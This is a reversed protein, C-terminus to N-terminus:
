KPAPRDVWGPTTKLWDRREVKKQLGGFEALAGLEVDEISTTTCYYLFVHVRKHIRDILDSRFLPDKVFLKYYKREFRDIQRPWKGMSLCIPSEEGLYYGM